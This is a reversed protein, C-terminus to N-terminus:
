FGGPLLSILWCGGADHHPLFLCQLLFMALPVLLLTGTKDHVYTPCQLIKLYTGILNISNEISYFGLVGM